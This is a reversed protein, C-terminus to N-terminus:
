DVYGEKVKRIFIVKNLKGKGWRKFKLASNKIPSIGVGRCAEVTTVWVVGSLVTVKFTIIRL